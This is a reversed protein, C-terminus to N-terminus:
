LMAGVLKECCGCELRHEERRGIREKNVVALRAVVISGNGLRRTAPLLFVSTAVYSNSIQNVQVKGGYLRSVKESETRVRLKKENPYWLVLQLFWPDIV